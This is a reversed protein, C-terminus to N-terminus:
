PNYLFIYVSQNTNETLNFLSESGLIGFSSVNLVKVEELSIGRELEGDKNTRNILEAIIKPTCCSVMIAFGNGPEGADSFGRRIKQIDNKFGQYAKEIPNPMKYNICKLEIYTEDRRGGRTNYAVYFDCRTRSDPYTYEREIICSRNLSQLSMGWEVQLWGEWGGANVDGTALKQFKCWDTEGLYHIFQEIRM